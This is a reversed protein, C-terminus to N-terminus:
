QALRTKLFRLPLSGFSTLKQLFEKQSFSAGKAAKYDKEMDLIEQYGIYAYAAELPHTVIMNWEREAEAETVFGTQTLYRIAQEKTSSGEHISIDLTFNILARLKLKLEMLRQKLDYNNYGAFVFMDEAYLPWGANLAKNPSLKQILSSHNWSVAAPSFAGPFIKEATWIPILYNTFEDMFSQAKDAPLDEPYPNVYLKFKGAQDYPAPYVLQVLQDFRLHRPMIEIAPFDEPLDLLGKKSIFGKLDEAAAKIRPLWEDKTPQQFTKIRNLVHNIVKTIQQEQTLNAPPREIDFEPDMIKYYAFCNKFMENRINTTDAKARAGLENLMISGGITLQILRQHAEGLRFNGTSRALLDGELFKGFDEIAPLAKAWETQFKTKAEAGAPEILAPMDTKYFDLIFRYQRIAAETYEKPPTKLNEKAQKIFAPLAKARETASKLRADLPAFEKTLLARISQLIIENYLLPNLQQPVIRELKLQDLDLWDRLMDMDTQKEPSLKDKAIKNVLEANVKDLGDLYKEMTSEAFDELKDNYKYYGVQTAATPNFKWYNDFYTDFSKAFKADEANQQGAYGGFTLFAGLVILAIVATKRMGDEEIYLNKDILPRKHFKFGLVITTRFAIGAGLIPGM